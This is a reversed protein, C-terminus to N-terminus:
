ISTESLSPRGSGTLKRKKINEKINEKIIEKREKRKKLSDNM